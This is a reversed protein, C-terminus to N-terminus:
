KRQEADNPPHTFSLAAVFMGASAITVVLSVTVIMMVVVLLLFM